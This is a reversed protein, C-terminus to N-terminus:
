IQSGGALTPPLPRALVKSIRAGDMAAIEFRWGDFSLQEGVHPVHDLKSLILGAVTVVDKQWNGDLGLLEAADDIATAADIVLAGDERRTVKKEPRTDIDPLRGAVAELLDTRTVVGQLTGYEDVVVATNVPTKRFLDLTRLISTREPVILPPQLSPMVDLSSGDLAQNLLDQKRVVGVVKDITGRCVILQPYPCGRITSVIADQPGDADIWAVDPRPTMITRVSRDTLDLVDEIMEREAAHILGAKEGELIVGIIDEDTVHREFGPRLGFFNLIWTSSVNLLWVLPASIRLFIVIPRSVKLAIGEPNKLAIQKPALEGAVLSLYTVGVVVMAVAVPKSFAAISPFRDLWVDVRDALTLGSFAGAMIGTSTIGVQLAALLQGPEDALRLAARAGAYGNAALHELRARRSTIIAIESMAFFGNLLILLVVVILELAM